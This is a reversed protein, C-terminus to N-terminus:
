SGQPVDIDVCSDDRTWDADAAGDETPMRMNSVAAPLANNHVVMIERMMPTLVSASM